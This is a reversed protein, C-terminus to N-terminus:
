RLLFTIVSTGPFRFMSESHRDPSHSTLSDWLKILDQGKPDNKTILKSTIAEGVWRTKHTFEEGRFIEKNGESRKIAGLPEGGVKESAFM